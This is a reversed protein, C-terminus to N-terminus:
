SYMRINTTVLSLPNIDFSENEIEITVQQSQIKSLNSTKGRWIDLRM